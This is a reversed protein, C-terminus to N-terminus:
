KKKKAEKLFDKILSEIVSSYSASERNCFEKFEEIVAPTLTITFRVKNDGQRADDLIKKPDLAMNM